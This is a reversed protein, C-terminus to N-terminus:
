IRLLLKPQRDPPRKSGTERRQRRYDFEFRVVTIGAQCLLNAMREMFDSDMGAGAGHSLILVEADARAKNWILELLVEQFFRQGSGAVRFLVLPGSKKPYFAAPICGNDRCRPLMLLM